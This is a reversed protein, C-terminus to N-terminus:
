RTKLGTEEYHSLRLEASLGRSPRSLPKLKERPTEDVATQAQQLIQPVLLSQPPSPTDPEWFSPCALATQAVAVPAISPIGLAAVMAEIDDEDVPLNGKPVQSHSPLHEM